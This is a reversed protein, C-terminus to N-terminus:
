ILHPMDSFVAEDSVNSSNNNVDFELKIKKGRPNHNEKDSDENDTDSRLSKSKLRKRMEDEEMKKLKKVSPIQFRFSVEIFFMSDVRINRHSDLTILYDPNTKMVDERLPHNFFCCCNGNDCYGNPVLCNIDQEFRCDYLEFYLTETSTWGYSQPYRFTFSKKSIGSQDFITIYGNPSLKLKIDARTPTYNLQELIKNLEIEESTKPNILPAATGYRDYHRCLIAGSDSELMDLLIMDDGLLQKIFNTVNKFKITFKGTLDIKDNPKICELVGIARKQNTKSSKIDVWKFYFKTSQCKMAEIDIKRFSKFTDATNYTIVKNSIYNPNLTSAM